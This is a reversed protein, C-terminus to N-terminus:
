ESIIITADGVVIDEFLVNGVSHNKITYLSPKLEEPMTAENTKNLLKLQNKNRHGRM